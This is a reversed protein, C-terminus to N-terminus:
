KRCLFMQNSLTNNTLALAPARTVWVNRMGECGKGLSGECKPAGDLGSSGCGRGTGRERASTKSTEKNGSSKSGQAGQAGSLDKRM